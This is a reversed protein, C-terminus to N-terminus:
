RGTSEWSRWKLADRFGLIGTGSRLLNLIVRFIKYLFFCRLFYDPKLAFNVLVSPWLAFFLSYFKLHLILHSIDKSLTHCSLLLQGLCKRPFLPSNSTLSKCIKCSNRTHNKSVGASVTLINYINNCIIYYIIIYKLFYNGYKRKRTENLCKIYIKLALTLNKNQNWVFMFKDQLISSVMWKWEDNGLLAQFRGLKAAKKHSYLKQLLFTVKPDVRLTKWMLLPVHQRYLPAEM